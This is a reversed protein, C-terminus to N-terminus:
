RGEALRDALFSPLGVERMHHQVAEIDYPTRHLTVHGEDPDYMAYSARPDGDRPQGVSGPNLILRRDALSVRLDPEWQVHTAQPHGYRRESIAAVHTHGAFCIDTALLKFNLSATHADGIYEWVPARPSGHVLTIGQVVTLSPLSELYRHQDQTLQASTWATAVQAVVNFASIDIGGTAALDHNGSLSPSVGLEAIRDVCWGPEPGYGVVDGLSWIEDVPGAEALVAELAVKNGHIDSMILIKV